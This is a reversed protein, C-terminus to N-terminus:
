KLVAGHKKVGLASMYGRIFHMKAEAMAPDNFDAGYQNEFEEELVDAANKQDRLESQRDAQGPMKFWFFFWVMAFVVGVAFLISLSEDNM